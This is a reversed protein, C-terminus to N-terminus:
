RDGRSARRGTPASLWWQAWVIYALLPVEKWFAVGQLALRLYVGVALLALLFVLCMALARM